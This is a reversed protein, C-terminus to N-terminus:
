RNANGNNGYDAKQRHLPEWASIQDGTRVRNLLSLLSIASMEANCKNRAGRGETEKDSPSM